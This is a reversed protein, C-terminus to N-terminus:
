AKVETLSRGTATRMFLCLWRFYAALPRIPVRVDIVAQQDNRFPLFAMTEVMAGGGLMRRLEEDCFKTMGCDTHHIVYIICTGLLRQSTILSRVADAARGGANRIIHADGVRLPLQAFSLPDIRADMCTVVATRKRTSHPVAGSEYLDSTDPVNHGVSSLKTPAFVVEVADLASNDLGNSESAIKDLDFMVPELNAM